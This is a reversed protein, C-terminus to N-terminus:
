DQIYGFLAMAIFLVAVLGSWKLTASRPHWFLFIMLLVIVTAVLLMEKTM